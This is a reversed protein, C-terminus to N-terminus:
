LWFWLGQFRGSAPAEGLATALWRSLRPVDQDYDLARGGRTPTPGGPSAGDIVRAM